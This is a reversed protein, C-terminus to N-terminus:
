DKSKNKVFLLFNQLYISALILHLDKTLYCKLMSECKMKTNIIMEISKLKFLRRAM